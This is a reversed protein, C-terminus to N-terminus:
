VKGMKYDILRCIRNNWESIGNSTAVYEQLYKRMIEQYSLLKHENGEAIAIESLLSAHYVYFRKFLDINYNTIRKVNGIEILKEFCRLSGEKEDLDGSHYLSEARQVYHYFPTAIYIASKCNMGILAVALVDEGIKLNEDFIQEGNGFVRDLLERRFVKNWLYACFGSYNYREFCYTLFDENSMTVEESIICRNSMCVEHDEWTKNLGCVGIEARHKEMSDIISEYMSQDIYDDSDMFTIYEGGCFELAKNRANSVGNNSQHIVHVRSDRAAYGDLIEGSVDTSGDDVCIVEINSYTQRLVSQLTRDLYKEVNYVPIVVSIRGEIHKSM